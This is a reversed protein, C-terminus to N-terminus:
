EFQIEGWLERSRTRITAVHIERAEPHLSDRITEIEERVLELYGNWRFGMPRGTTRNFVLTGTIQLTGRRHAEEPYTIQLTGEVQIRALPDAAEMLRCTLTGELRAAGGPQTVLAGVTTAPVTWPADVRVATEPLFDLVDEWQGVHEAGEAPQGTDVRTVTRSAGSRRVDFEGDQVSLTEEAGGEERTVVETARECRANLREYRGHSVADVRVAYTEDRQRRVQQSRTGNRDEVELTLDAVSTIRVRYTDDKELRSELTVEQPAPPPEDQLAALCAATMLTIM